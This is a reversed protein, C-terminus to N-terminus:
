QTTNRNKNKTYGRIKRESQERPVRSKKSSQTLKVSRQNKINQRERAVFENM